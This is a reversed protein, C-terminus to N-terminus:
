IKKFIDCFKCKGLITIEEEKVKFTKWWVHSGNCCLAPEEPLREVAGADLWRSRSSIEEYFLFLNEKYIPYINDHM